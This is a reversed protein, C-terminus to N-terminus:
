GGKTMTRRGQPLQEALRDIEPLTMLLDDLAQTLMQQASRGTVASALRLKLRRDADLRLTFAAKRGQAVDVVPKVHKAPKGRKPKAAEPAANIRDALNERETVVAPVPADLTVGMPTLGIAVPQEVPQPAPEM